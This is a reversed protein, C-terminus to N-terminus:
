SGPLHHLLVTLATGVPSRDDVHGGDISDHGNGGDAGVIGGLAAEVIKGPIRKGQEM